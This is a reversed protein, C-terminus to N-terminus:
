SDRAPKGAFVLRLRDPCSCDAARTERPSGLLCLASGGLLYLVAQGAWREGLHRLFEWITDANVSEM